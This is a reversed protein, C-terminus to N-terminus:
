GHLIKKDVKEDGENVGSKKKFHRCWDIERTQPWPGDNENSPFAPSDYRCYGCASDSLRDWFVCDVCRGKSM